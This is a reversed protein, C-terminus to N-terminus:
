RHCHLTTSNGDLAAGQEAKKMIWYHSGTGSFDNSLDDELVFGTTALIKSVYESLWYRIKFEDSYISEDGSTGRVKLKEQYRYINGNEAIVSVFREILDNKRSYNQFIMKSPIDILLLGNLKLASHAAWIAKKLSEEDLLYLLVTFVCLAFDFNSEEFDQM